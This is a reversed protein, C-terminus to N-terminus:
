PHPKIRRRQGSTRRSWAFDPIIQRSNVTTQRKFFRIAMSISNKTPSIESMKPHDGNYLRKPLVDRRREPNNEIWLIGHIHNPMIVFEDIRINKRIEATRKWETEAIKGLENM